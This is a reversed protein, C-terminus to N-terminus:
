SPPGNQDDIDLVPKKNDLFASLWNSYEDSAHDANISLIEPLDYSHNEKIYTEVAQVNDNRTKILLLSESDRVLEGKWEYFSEIKPLVQVCAALRTSILGKALDAAEDSSGCTTLVLSIGAM